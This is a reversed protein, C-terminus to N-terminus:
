PRPHRQAAARPTAPRSAKLAPLFKDQVFTAARRLRGADVGFAPHIDFGGRGGPCPGGEPSLAPHGYSVFVVREFMGDVMPKLAARLRAFDAPLCPTM